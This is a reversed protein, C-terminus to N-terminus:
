LEDEDQSAEKIVEAISSTMVKAILELADKRSFGADQLTVYLEHMSIAADRLPSSGRDNRM